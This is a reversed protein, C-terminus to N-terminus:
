SAQDLQLPIIELRVSRVFCYLVDLPMLQDFHTSHWPLRNSKPPTACKSVMTTDLITCALSSRSTTVLHDHYATQAHLPTTHSDDGLSIRSPDVFQPPMDVPISQTSRLLVGPLFLSTPNSDTALFGEM